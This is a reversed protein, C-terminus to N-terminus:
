LKVILAYKVINYLLEEWIIMWSWQRTPLLEQRTRDDISFYLSVQNCSEQTINM